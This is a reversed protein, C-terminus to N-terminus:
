HDFGSQWWEIYNVIVISLLLAMVFYNIGRVIDNDPKRFRLLIVVIGSATTLFPIILRKLYELEWNQQKMDLHYVSAYM